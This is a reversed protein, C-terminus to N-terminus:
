SFLNQAPNFAKIAAKGNGKEKLLRLPLFHVTNESNGDKAYQLSRAHALWPDWPIEVYICAEAGANFLPSWTHASTM